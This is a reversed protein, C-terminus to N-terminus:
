GTPPWKFQGHLSQPLWELYEHLLYNQDKKWAKLLSDKSNVQEKILANLLSETRPQLRLIIIVIFYHTKEVHM